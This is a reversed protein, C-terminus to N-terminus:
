AHGAVGNWPGLGIDAVIVQGCRAPGEGRVHARKLGHFTVTLNAAAAGPGGTTPTLVEGTDTDLGSPLDVAVVVPGEGRREAGLRAADAIDFLIDGLGEIPRTLGTGFLADVVLDCDWRRRVEFEPIPHVAGVEAWRDHNAKADAPLRAPDGLLYLDIGWGRDHLLRAIVFGDGGNNGPGCFVVARRPGRALRPWRNLAAEVVGRGAREMLGLGTVAGSEIAAREIARMGAATLPETM